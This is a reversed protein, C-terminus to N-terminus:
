SVEDKAETFFLYVASVLHLGGFIAAMLFSPSLRLVEAGAQLGSFGLGMGCLVFAWGLRRVGKAVYFGAAHLGLGFLVSWCVVLLVQSRVAESAPGLVYVLGLSGGILLVPVFAAFIRRTPATWFVEGAQIAQGRTVWGAGLLVVAAVAGWLLVFERATTINLFGAAVGGGIAGGAGLMMLPALRRRYLASREMLTRIVHLNEEAWNSSM